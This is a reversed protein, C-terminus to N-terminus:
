RSLAKQLLGMGRKLLLAAKARPINMTVEISRISQKEYGFGYVRKVIERELTPLSRVAERVRADQEASEFLQEPTEHPQVASPDADAFRTAPEVDRGDGDKVPADTSVVQVAIGEDGAQSRKSIQSPSKRKDHHSAHVDSSHLMVQDRIARNVRYRCWYEFTTGSSPDFTRIAKFVEIAGVQKLDDISLSGREKVAFACERLLSAIPALRMLRDSMRGAERERGAARLEQIEAVVASAESPEATGVRAAFM